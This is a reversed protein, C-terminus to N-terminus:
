GGHEKKLKAMDKKEDIWDEIFGCSTCVYRSVKVAKWFAPYPRPGLTRVIDSSGCKTCKKTTKM